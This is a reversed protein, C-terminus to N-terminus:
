GQQPVEAAPDAPAPTEEVPVEEVPTSPAVGSISTAIADVEGAASNLDALAADTAARAEDLSAGQAVDEAAESAALEAAAAREADLASQLTSIRDNVATSLRGLADTLASMHTEQRNVSALIQKLLDRGTLTDILGRLDM